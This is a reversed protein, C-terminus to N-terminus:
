LATPKQTNRTNRLQAILAPNSSKLELVDLLIDVQTKIEQTIGLGGNM